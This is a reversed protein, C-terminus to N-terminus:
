TNRFKELLQDRIENWPRETQPDSRYANLREHLCQKHSEPVPINGPEKAIQNWLDQVLAIKKEKPASRFEPPIKLKANSM